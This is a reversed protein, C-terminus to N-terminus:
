SVCLAVGIELACCLSEVSGGLVQHGGCCDGDGMGGVVLKREVDLLRDWNAVREGQGGQKDTKDGLKWMHIFGYLMM